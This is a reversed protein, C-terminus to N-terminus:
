RYSGWEELTEWMTVINQAPVDAQINHVASFVFGGSPM